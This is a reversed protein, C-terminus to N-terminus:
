HVRTMQGIVATIVTILVPGTRVIHHPALQKADWVYCAMQGKGGVEHFPATVNWM